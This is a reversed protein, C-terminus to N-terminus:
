SLAREVCAQLRKKAEHIVKYLAEKKMGFREGVEDYREGSLAARVIPLARDGLKELCGELVARRESELYSHEPGPQASAVESVAGDGESTWQGRRRHGDIVENRAIQFLWGRFHQGDFRAPLQKWVKLWIAQHTDEVEARKLRGALFALLRPAHRHYLEDFAARASTGSGERASVARALDEDPIASTVSMGFLTWGGGAGILAVRATL